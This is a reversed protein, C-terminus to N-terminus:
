AGAKEKLIKLEAEIENDSFQELHQKFRKRSVDDYSGDQNVAQMVKDILVKRRARM